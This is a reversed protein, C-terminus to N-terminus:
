AARDEAGGAIAKEVYRWLAARERASERTWPLFHESRRKRDFYFAGEELKERPAAALWVITDAGEAPTRLLAETVRRFRPLSSAVAPTDAWGPHMSVSCVSTKALKRAWQEALAVQMRKTEAYALGGDYARKTWQPDNLDLKRTYMGGSSVWILRADDSRELAPRLLQTLLQPGAVHTAFTLEFGDRSEGREDPLVGANHVLIDLRQAALRPAVARVAALDSVDLVELSIKRSGTRERIADRAAIGREENRCALVVEAGLDALALATEFGIGSNAGTVVARKGSLDRDLDDPDFGLAHRAFGTRDFSFLITPDLVRSLANAARVVRPSPSSEERLAPADPALAALIDETAAHDGAERSVHRLTLSGDQRVVLVGGLQFPDGQVAGQRYGGRLARLANTALRPSLLESRGRRMGAARYSRLGPDVLLVVDDPLGIDERFARAFEATGNGIIALDGGAARIEPLKDRM